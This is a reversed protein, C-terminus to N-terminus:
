EPADNAAKLTLLTEQCWLAQVPPPYYTIQNFQQQQRGHRSQKNARQANNESKHTM